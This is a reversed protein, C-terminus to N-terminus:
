LLPDIFKVVLITKFYRRNLRVCIPLGQQLFCPVICFGKSLRNFLQRIVGIKIFNNRRKAVTKIFIYLANDFMIMIM